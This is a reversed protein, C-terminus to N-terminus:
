GKKLHVVTNPIFVTAEDGITEFVWHFSSGKWCQKKLKRFLSQVDKKFEPFENAGFYALRGDVYINKDRIKSPRYEIVPSDYISISSKGSLTNIQTALKEDTLYIQFSIKPFEEVREIVSENKGFYDRVYLSGFKNLLEQRIIQEGKEDAFYNFQISSM